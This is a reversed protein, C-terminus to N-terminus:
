SMINCIVVEYDDNYQKGCFDKMIMRKMLHITYETINTEPFQRNAEKIVKYGNKPNVIRYHVFNMKTEKNVIGLNKTLSDLNEKASPTQGLELYSLQVVM